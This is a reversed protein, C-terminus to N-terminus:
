LKRLTTNPFYHALIQQWTYGKDAMVAAGIQCLGVGHGWGAGTLTFRITGDADTTKDVVFASSYLHSKSLWKRIELEKGVTLTHKTGVVKLQWLRASPGRRVPILQQITGFDIGSREYVLQSLEKQTYHVQWRYFDTTEQDYNNLVQQLIRRDRTNCFASPATRIWQAAQQEDTLDPLSAQVDDRVAELYTYHRDAWCNEFLETAGGCSKYFRADRVSGDTTSTLVIGRTADIAAQVNASTQRTIGQYRQCHDDACVDFLSHADREYWRILLDSDNTCSPKVSTDPEPNLLPHLLWSRSIVAHAKLLEPSSQASMESSIVSVLYDEVDIRNIAVLGKESHLVRDNGTLILLDGRFTQDERREWHFNVGITVDKLTFNDGGSFLLSDYTNGEFRIRGDCFEATHYGSYPKSNLLYNGQLTFRIVPASMIGVSLQRHFM